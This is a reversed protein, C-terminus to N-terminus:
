LMADGEPQMPVKKWWTNVTKNGAGFPNRTKRINDALVDIIHKPNYM